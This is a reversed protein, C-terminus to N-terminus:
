LNTENDTEFGAFEFFEFAEDLADADILWASEDSDWSAHSAFDDSFGFKNAAEIVVNDTGINSSLAMEEVSGHEVMEESMEKWPLIKIFDKAEFPSELVVKEGYDTEVVEVATITDDSMVDMYLSESYKFTECNVDVSM